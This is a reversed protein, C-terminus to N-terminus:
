IRLTGGEDQAAEKASEAADAGGPYPADGSKSAKSEEAALKAIRNDLLTIVPLRHAHGQEWDRLQVLQGTSLSRLRARLSGISINDFDPIPLEERSTASPVDLEDAVEDVTDAVAGPAGAAVAEAPPTGSPTAPRAKATPETAPETPPEETAPTEVAAEAVIASATERAASLAIEAAERDAGDDLVPQPLFRGLPTHAAIQLAEGGRRITFERIGRTREWAELAFTLAVLPVRGVERSLRGVVAGALGPNDSARPDRHDASTM